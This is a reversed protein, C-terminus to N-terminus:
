FQGSVHPRPRFPPLGRKSPIKLEIFMFYQKSTIDFVLALADDPYGSVSFSIFLKTSKISPAPVGRHLVIHYPKKSKFFLLRISGTQITEWTVNRRRNHWYWHHKQWRTLRALFRPKRPPLNMVGRLTPFFKWTRRLGRYNSNKVM